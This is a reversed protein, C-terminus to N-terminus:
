SRNHLRQFPSSLKRYKEIIGKCNILGFGHGGSKNEQIVNHNFIQQTQEKAMGKGNDTVSVEVSDDLVCAELVIGDEQLPTFKRANDTITNIMFLTMTRDAKVVADTPKIDLTIGRMRSIGMASKALVAFLEEM